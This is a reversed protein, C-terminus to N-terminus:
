QMGKEILEGVQSAGPVGAAQGVATGLRVATKEQQKPTKASVLASAQRPVELLTDFVPIGTSKYLIMSSLQGGGPFRRVMETLVKKGLGEGEHKSKYGVAAELMAKISTRITTEAAIMTLVALTMSAALKPNKERIGAQWLDHRLNSWQDLFINQFQLVSRGLSINGGTLSGRSLALPVDKPLPSAVARRSTVLALQQAERDIPLEAYKSPDIGKEKLAKFYTGMVTAQSNLRDIQRAVIFAARVAKRNVGIKEFPGSELEAAEVIASEGGGRALTESFHRKLFERGEPSMAAQLGEGYNVVGGTRQISLPINSLHVLNSAVRFGVVGASTKKRMVDLLKWRRFGGIRGQRAITDLWDVVLRQGADGYKEKFLDGRVLEGTMKLERQTKLLYSADNIHQYFVDFANMKIPSQANEVRRITMGREVKSTKPPIFDGLLNKWNALEDFSVVSGTATFKPEPAEYEMKSWDRPMPWYNKVPEVDINYLDRMLRQLDPLMSDLALRMQRYAQIEEPRITRLIKDIVAPNEGQAIMRARGGPMQSLAYINIREAQMEGMDHRKILDVVPEALTDRLYVAENYALDIPGRVHRFLWGKYTGKADGLMDLVADIPLLNKDAFAAADMARNLFNRVKISAPRPEGRQQRVEPRTEWPNTVEDTLERNKLSKEQEWAYQRNKVNERGLNELLSLKNLLTSLADLPLERLPTRGLMAVKDLIERPVTVDQGAAQMRDLYDKTRNLKEITAPTMKKFMVEEMLGQIRAKYAIDVQPSEIARTFLAQIQNVYRKRAVEETWNDIAAAVKAARRYMMEVASVKGEGELNVTATFIAPRKTANNIATIFRGREAPPLQKKVMATLSEKIQTADAELWDDAEKVEAKSVKPAGTFHEQLARATELHSQLTNIVNETPTYTSETPVGTNEAIIKQVPSLRSRARGRHEALIDTAMTRIQDMFPAIRKTHERIMEETWRASEIGYKAIKAAAIIAYDKINPLEGLPGSGFTIKGQREKIRASAEAAAENLASEIAEVRGVKGKPVATDTESTAISELQARGTKPICSRCTICKGTECCINRFLGSAESRRQVKKSMISDDHFPTELVERQVVGMEKMKELMWAENPMAVDSINDKNTIVRLIPNLGAKKAAEFEGLRLMLENKHFWGSVSFHLEMNDKFPALARYQADTVPAYGASIFITKKKVGNEQASKMWQEALGSAITHSDCGMQGMRVFPGSNLWDVNEKDSMWKRMSNVDAVKLEKVEMNETGGMRAAQSWNVWCDGGYCSELRTENPLLGNEVRELTVEARQCGKTLSVVPVKEIKSGSDIYKTMKAFGTVKEAQAYIKQYDAAREPSANVRRAQATTRLPTGVKGDVIKNALQQDFSVTFVRKGSRYKTLAVPRIVKVLAFDQDLADRYPSGEPPVTQADIVENLTPPTDVGRQMATAIAKAASREAALRTMSFGLNSAIGQITGVMKEFWGRNRWRAALLQLARADVEPTLKSEPYLTRVEAEIVKREVASLKSLAEGVGGARDAAHAFEHEAVWELHGQNRINASNFSIGILKDDATFFSKGAWTEMPNRDVTFKSGPFNRTLFQSVEDQTMPREEGTGPTEWGRAEETNSEAELREATGAESKLREAAAAAEAKLTPPVQAAELDEQWTTRKRWLEKGRSSGELITFKVSIDSLDTVKVPGFDPHNIVDEIRPDKAIRAENARIEAAGEEVAKAREQAGTKIPPRKGPYQHRGEIAEVAKPGYIGELENLAARNLNLLEGMKKRLQIKNADTIGKAKSLESMESAIRWRTAIETEADKLIPINDWGREKVAGPLVDFEQNKAWGPTETVPEKPPTVKEPKIAKATKGGKGVAYFEVPNALVYSKGRVTVKLGTYDGREGKGATWMDHFTKRNPFTEGKWEAAPVMEWGQYSTYVDGAHLGGLTTYNKGNHTFVKSPKEKDAWYTGKLKDLEAPKLEVTGTQGRLEEINKEQRARQEQAFTLRPKEQVEGPTKATPVLKREIENLRARLVQRVDSISGRWDEGHMNIGTTKEADAVLADYAEDSIDEKETIKGTKPDQDELQELLKMIKAREAGPGKGEPVELLPQGAKPLPKPVESEVHSFDVANEGPEIDIVKVNGLLKQRLHMPAGSVVAGGLKTIGKSQLDRIMERYLLESYKKGRHEPEIEVHDVYASGPEQKNEWYSIRGITEGNLKLTVETSGTEKNVSSEITPNQKSVAKTPAETTKPPAPPMGGYKNKLAERAPWNGEATLPQSTLRQWEAWDEATAHYKTGAPDGWENKYRSEGGMEAVPPRPTIPKAAPGTPTSKRIRISEPNFVVTETPAVLGDFGADRLAKNAGAGRDKMNVVLETWVNQGYAKYVNDFPGLEFGAAKEIAKIQKKTLVTKDAPFPNTLKVGAEIVRPSGGKNLVIRNGEQGLSYKTADDPSKTFYFGPGYADTQALKLSFREFEPQSTGHFLIEEGEIPPEPTIPKEGQPPATPATPEPTTPPLGGGPGAEPPIGGEGDRPRQKQVDGPQQGEKTADTGAREYAVRQEETGWAADRLIAAQQRNMEPFLRQVASKTQAGKQRVQQIQLARAAIDEEAQTLGKTPEPLTEPVEPEPLPKGQKQPFNLRPVPQRIPTVPPKQPAALMEAATLAPRPGPAVVRQGPRWQPQVGGQLSEGTAVMEPSVGPLAAPKFPAPEAGAVQRALARAAIDKPSQRAKGMTGLLFMSSVNGVAEVWAGERQDEPLKMIEHIQDATLLATAGAAGGLRNVANAAVESTMGMRTALSETLAGTWHGVMPLAAGIAAAKMDLGEETLGFAAAGAVPAPIGMATMASM